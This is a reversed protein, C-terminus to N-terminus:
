REAMMNAPPTVIRAQFCRCAEGSVPLAVVGEGSKPGKIRGKIRGGALLHACTSSLPAYACSSSGLWGRTPQCRAPLWPARSPAATRNQDQLRSDVAHKQLASAAVVSHPLLSWDPCHGAPAARWRALPQHPDRGPLVGDSRSHAEDVTARCALQQWGSLASAPVAMRAHRRPHNWRWRSLRQGVLISSRGSRSFGVFRPLMRRPRAGRM